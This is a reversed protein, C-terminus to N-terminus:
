PATDTPLRSLDILIVTVTEDLVPEQIRQAQVLISGSRMPPATGSRLATQAVQVLDLGAVERGVVHLQRGVDTKVLGLLAATTSSFSIIELERSLQLFGAGLFSLVADDIRLRSNHEDYMREHAETVAILEENVAQLEENAGHLEENSAQLEENAAQLEENSAQLEENSAQLEEASAELNETVYQLSEETLRLDRELKAIRQRLVETTDMPPATQAQEPAPPTPDGGNVLSLTALVTTESRATGLREFAVQLTEPQKDPHPITALRPEATARGGGIEDLGAFLAAQLDPHIVESVTLEAMNFKTDVYAAAIGFWGLVQGNTHLLISSPAFRKLLEDFGALLAGKRNAGSDPRQPAPASHTRPTQAPGTPQPGPLNRTVNRTMPTSTDFLEPGYIRIDGSKRFIRWRASVEVFADGYTGLTESPGLFLIGDRRLSFIFRALVRSKGTDNLYIMMNRCSILDINKFPPDTLANHTSFLVKHRLSSRVSYTAGARTFYKDRLPAPIAAIEEPSFHGRAAYALAAAHVDTAIVRVERTIGIEELCECIEIALSYAEQGTACGPVWIRLPTGEGGNRAIVPLTLRRLTAFAEADRFFQTVGILLDSYLDDLMDPSQSLAAVYTQLDDFGALTRRREIRRLVSKSHYDAFDLRFRRELLILISDFPDDPLANMPNKTDPHDLIEAIAEAMKEPALIRDVATAGIVSKPMSRFSADGPTQVIVHGGATALAAAGLSGDHGAGSLIVAISQAPCQSALDKIFTDISGAPFGPQEVEEVAFQGARLRLTEGPPALYVTGARPTVGDEAQLIPLDTKRQLLELMHSRHNRSLHQLVVFCWGCDPPVADFLRMLPDLGGASAGVAIIPMPLGPVAPTLSKHTPM